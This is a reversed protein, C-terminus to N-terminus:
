KAKIWSRHRGVDSQMKWQMEAEVKLVRLITDSMKEGVHRTLGLAELFKQRAQVCALDYLERKLSDEPFARPGVEKHLRAAFRGDAIAYALALWQLPDLLLPKM